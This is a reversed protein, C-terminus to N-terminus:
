PIVGSMVGPHKLYKPHTNPESRIRNAGAGDSTGDGAVILVTAAGAVM